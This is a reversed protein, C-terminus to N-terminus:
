QNMEEFKMEYNEKILEVAAAVGDEGPDVAVELIAESLIGWMGSPLYKRDFLNDFVVDDKFWELSENYVDNTYNGSIEVDKLAPNTGDMNAFEAAVEPKALYELFKCCEEFHETDKWIGFCTGEGAYYTSPADESVSPTPIMGVNANEVYHRANTVNQMGRFVFACDGNGLATQAAVTDATTIDENVYGKQVYEAFKEMLLTGYKDWDFTGDLLEKEGPYPCGENTFMMPAFSNIFGSANGFDKGGIYIPVKGIAKIKECAEEFDALTRIEKPDVGAEEIVDFNCCVPTIVTTLPLAYINGEDDQIVGLASEDVRDFWPQDNLVTLYESYRRVSWGHTTWIDPLEGSAMRTKMTEEFDALQLIEVDIGTEKEFDEAIRNITERGAETDIISAVQITDGKASKASAATTESGASPSSASCGAMTFVAAAAIATMTFRIQKNM